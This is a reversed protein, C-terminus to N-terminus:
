KRYIQFVGVAHHARQTFSEFRTVSQVPDEAQGAQEAEIGRGAQLMWEARPRRLTRVRQLLGSM